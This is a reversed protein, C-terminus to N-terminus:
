NKSLVRRLNIRLKKYVWKKLKKKVNNHGLGSNIYQVKNTLIIITVCM